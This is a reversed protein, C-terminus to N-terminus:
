KKHQPVFNLWDSYSTIGNTLYSCNACRHVSQMVNEGRLKINYVVFESLDRTPLGVKTRANLASNLALFESHDGPNNLYPPYNGGTSKEYNILRQQLVPHVENLPPLGTNQGYFIEGTRNDRLASLMPGRKNSSQSAVLEAAKSEASARLILANQNHSLYTPTSLAKIAKAGSFLAAEPAVVYSSVEGMFRGSAEMLTTPKDLFSYTEFGGNMYVGVPGQTILQATGLLFQSTMDVLQTGAGWATDLWGGMPTNADLGLNTRYGARQAEAWAINAEVDVGSLLGGSPSYSPNAAYSDIIRQTWRDTIAASAAMRNQQNVYQEYDISAINHSTLGSHYNGSEVVGQQRSVRRAEDVAFQAKASARQSAQLM